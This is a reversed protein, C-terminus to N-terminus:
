SARWLGPATKRSSVDAYLAAYRAGMAAASMAVARARARAALSARMGDHEILMLLAARLAGPDDPPVYVAAGQWIERLSAIDGLVLACGSLAAELISLGFPEYRAPACFIAARGLWDALERGDLTGLCQLGQLEICQGRPGRVPGALLAPWPLSSACADLSSLNKAPDWARGAALILREAAGPVFRAADRGNGIVQARAGVDSSGEYCAITAALAARTPAVVAAAARLARAVRERYESWEAPADTGHVARWWSCVCSHAVCIVPVGFDLSAHAFGNVHVVDVELRRALEQVYRGAADVGRWEGPMWELPYETEIVCLGPIDDLDARQQVSIAAGMTVLIVDIGQTHLTRVLQAAYTFVGGLTDATM